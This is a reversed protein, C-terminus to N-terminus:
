DLYLIQNQDDYRPLVAFYEAFENKDHIFQDMETATEKKSVKLWIPQNKGIYRILVQRADKLVTKFRAYNDVEGDLVIVDVDNFSDVFDLEIEINNFM